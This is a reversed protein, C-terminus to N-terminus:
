KKWAPKLRFYHSAPSTAAIWRSPDAPDQNLTVGSATTATTLPLIDWSLLDSSHELFLDCDQTSHPTQHFSFAARTITTLSAADNVSPDGGLIWEMRNTIGDGDPDGDPTKDALAPFGTIWAGFTLPVKRIGVRGLRFTGTGNVQLVVSFSTTATPIVIPPTRLIGSPARLLGTVTTGATDADIRTVPGPYLSMVPRLNWAPSLDPDTQFEAVLEIADGAHWGTGSDGFGYRVFANAAPDSGTFSIQWWNGLDGGRPILSQSVTAAPPPDIAWGAPTVGTGTMTPTPTVWVTGAFPDRPRIHPALVTAAYAGLRSMGDGDPHVKAGDAAFYWSQDIVGDNDADLVNFWDLHIFRPDADCIAKIAGKMNVLWASRAPLGADIPLVDCLIPTIGQDALSACMQQLVAAVSEVTDGDNTGALVICAEANSALVHPLHVRQVDAARYGSTAFAPASGDYVLDVQQGLASSLNTWLGRKRYVTGDGNLESISDGMLAIRTFRPIEAVVPLVTALLLSFIARLATM